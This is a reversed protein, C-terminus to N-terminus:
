DENATGLFGINIKGPVIEATFYSEAKVPDGAARRLMVIQGVHTLADAIPGQTIKEIPHALPAESALYSDFAEVASFFRKAEDEWALPASNLVVFEGKMLVLSGELLDGLHALIEGPTRVTENIRFTAFDPKAGSIAVKARFALTAVLHRFLERKLDIMMLKM